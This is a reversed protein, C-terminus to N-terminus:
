LNCNNEHHCKAFAPEKVTLACYVSFVVVLNFENKVSNERIFFFSSM